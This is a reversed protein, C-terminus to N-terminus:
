KSIPAAPEQPAAPQAPQAPQAPAAMGAPVQNMLSSPKSRNNAIIALGM